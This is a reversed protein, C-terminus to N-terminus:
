EEAQQNKQFAKLVLPIISAIIIIIAIPTVYAGIGPVKAGLVYGALTIGAAWLLAGIINYSLFTNYRMRCVGAVIPAFTRVIPIFRALIIAVFGHKDYFEKARELHRHKFFRSDERLFLSVGLYSGFWYGVSDGAIAAITILAVLAWINFIGQSALLGATFLMSSGPLFFGFFLGSEAFIALFLGPYGILTILQPLSANAIHELM